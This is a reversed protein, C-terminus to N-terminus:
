NGLNGKSDFSFGAAESAKVYEMLETRSKFVLTQGFPLLGPSRKAAKDTQSMVGFDGGPTLVIKYDAMTAIGEARHAYGPNHYGNSTSSLSDATTPTAKSPLIRCM